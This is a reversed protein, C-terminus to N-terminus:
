SLWQDLIPAKVVIVVIEALKKGMRVTMERVSDSLKRHYVAHDIQVLQTLDADLSVSV